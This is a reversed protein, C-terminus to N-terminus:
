PKAREADAVKNILLLAEELERGASHELEGRAKGRAAYARRLDAACRNLHDAAKEYAQTKRM